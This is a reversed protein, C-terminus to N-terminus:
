ADNPTWKYWEVSNAASHFTWLDDMAKNVRSQFGCAHAVNHKSVFGVEAQLMVITTNSNSSVTTLPQQVTANHMALGTGPIM